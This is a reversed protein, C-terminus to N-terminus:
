PSVRHCTGLKLHIVFFISIHMSICQSIYIYIYIYIYINTINNMYIYHYIYIYMCPSLDNFKPPEIVKLWPIVMSIKRGPWSPIVDLDVPEDDREGHFPLKKPSYGMNSCVWIYIYM